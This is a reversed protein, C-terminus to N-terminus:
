AETSTFGVSYGLGIVMSDPHVNRPRFSPAATQELLGGVADSASRPWCSITACGYLDSEPVISGAWRREKPSGFAAKSMEGVSFKM